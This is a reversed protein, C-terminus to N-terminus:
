PKLYSNAFKKQPVREGSGRGREIVPKARLERPSQTRPEPKARLEGM